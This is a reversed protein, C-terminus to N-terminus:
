RRRGRYTGVGRGFPGRPRSQVPASPPPPTPPPVTKRLYEVVETHNGMIALAITNKREWEAGKSRIHPDAGHKLFLQVAALHGMAAAIHLPRRGTDPPDVKGGHRIAVELLEVKGSWALQQLALTADAGHKLLLEVMEPTNCHVMLQIGHAGKAHVEKPNATLYADVMATDGLACAMFLDPRAGQEIFYRLIDLKRGRAAARQPTEEGPRPTLANMAEILQPLDAYAEVVAKVTQLDIRAAAVLGTTALLAVAEDHTM